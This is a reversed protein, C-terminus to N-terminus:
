TQFGKHRRSAFSEGPRSRQSGNRLNTYTSGLGGFHEGFYYAFADVLIDLLIKALLYSSEIELRLTPAVRRWLDERLIREEESVKAVAPQGEGQSEVEFEALKARHATNRTTVDRHRDIVIELFRRYDIVASLRIWLQPNRGATGESCAARVIRDIRLYLAMDDTLGM